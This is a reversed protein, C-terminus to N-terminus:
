EVIRSFKQENNTLEWKPTSYMDDGRLVVTGDLKYITLWMIMRDGENEGSKFYDHTINQFSSGDYIQINYGLYFPNQRTKNLIIEDTGDGNLDFFDIDATIGFEATRPIPVGQQVFGVSSNFYIMTSTDNVAYEHGTSIIDLFGDKNIDYIEITFKGKLQDVFASKNFFATDKLLTTTFNGKGDNELYVSTREGAAGDLLIVDLDGDNDIDGSSGTHFYGVTNELRVETFIGGPSNLLLIPYEENPYTGDWIDYGSGIFFIDPLGDNNYDGTLGKRGHILGVFKNSNVPDETLNGDADGKLFLIKDRRYIGYESRTEVIDLYGDNDYDLVVAELPPHWNSFQRYEYKIEPLPIRTEFSNKNYDISYINEFTSTATLDETTTTNVEISELEEKSCGVLILCILIFNLKFNNMVKIKINYM